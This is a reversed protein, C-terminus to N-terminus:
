PMFMYMERNLVGNITEGSIDLRWGQYEGHKEKVPAADTRVYPPRLEQRATPHRRAPISEPARAHKSAVM